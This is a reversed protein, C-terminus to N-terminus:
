SVLNIGGTEFDFYGGVLKLQGATILELLVSSEKLKNMQYIVNAEVAAKVATKDDEQGQFETVAPEIQALISEISGPVEEGALTAKVAGCSDHGMVMIVKTGLVLAGFELSGTEEATAVNGADRVVFLDGFGQNFVVEVPVRSDACTLIAAFPKQSKSISQLYQISQNPNTRENQVFRQNGEILNNLAQDPTLDNNAIAPPSQTLNLGLISSFTATGLFGTGFEMLRRRSIELNPQQNNKM